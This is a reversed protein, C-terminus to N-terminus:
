GALRFAPALRAEEIARGLADESGAHIRLVPQGARLDAGLDALLDVGARKDGPAGAARAVGGIVFTDFAALRGASPAVIEHVFVGPEVPVPQRGQADIIREMAELAAGSDLLEAARAHHDAGAARAPDWGILTAAFDLAKERLDAPAEPSGALVARVDRLELAPGVGRGIPGAGDTLRANVTLGVAAGVAEFLDAFARAEEPDRLKAAPGVPIDILVHSAGAALKKSLISSVDLLRSSVGLPRNIANMVDDVPSHSIRGNWVVCAGAREVAACMEARTLDVRAIAEM